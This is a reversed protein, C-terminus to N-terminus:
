GALWIIPMRQIGDQGVDFADGACGEFANESVVAVSAVVGRKLVLEFGEGGALLAADCRM